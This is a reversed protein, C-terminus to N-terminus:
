ENWDERQARMTKWVKWATVLCLALGVVAAGILTWTLTFCLYILLGLTGWQLALLVALVTWFGYDRKSM